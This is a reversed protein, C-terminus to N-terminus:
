KWEVEIKDEIGDFECDDPTYEILLQEIKKKNVVIKAGESTLSDVYSINKLRNRLEKYAKVYLDLAEYDEMTMTVTINKKNIM